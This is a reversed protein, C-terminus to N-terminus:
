PSFHVKLFNVLERARVDITAGKRVYEYGRRAIALREDEHDLYYRIKETLDRGGTTFVLCGEMSAKASPVVDTILFGRCALVEFTRLTIVDWDICTQQTCNLNIKSSSYLVPVDEQPIKGRSIRSFALKYRIARWGLQSWFRYANNRLFLLNWTGFLGFDFAVAPYLYKWTADTGKIDNGVYSCEFRYKPDCPRPYFLNTDVGFPLYLSPAANQELAQYADALKKSFFVYGDYDGKCRRRIVDLAEISFREGNQIYLLNKAATERSPPTDHLYIMAALKERPLFNPAYLEAHVDPFLRNIARCLSEMLLEDGLVQRFKSDLSFKNYGVYFGINM